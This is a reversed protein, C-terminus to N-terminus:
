GSDVAPRGRYAGSGPQQDLVAEFRPERQTPRSCSVVLDDGQSVHGALKFILNSVLACIMQIVDSPFPFDELPRVHAASERAMKRPSFFLPPPAQGASNLVLV